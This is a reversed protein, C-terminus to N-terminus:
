LEDSLESPRDVSKGQDKMNGHTSRCIGNALAFIVVHGNIRSLLGAKCM